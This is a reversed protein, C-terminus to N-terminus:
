LSVEQMQADVTHQCLTFNTGDSSSLLPDFSESSSSPYPLPLSPDWDSSYKPENAHSVHILQLQTLVGCEITPRSENQLDDSFQVLHQLIKEFM